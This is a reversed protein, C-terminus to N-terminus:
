CIITSAENGPCRGLRGNCQLSEESKWVPRPVIVPLSDSDGSVFHSSLVVWGKHHIGPFYIRQGDSKAIHLTIFKENNAFDSQLYACLAISSLSM